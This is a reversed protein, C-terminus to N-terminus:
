IEDCLVYGTYMLRIVWTQRSKNKGLRYNLILYDSIYRFTSKQGLQPSQSSDFPISPSGMSEKVPFMAATYVIGEKLWMASPCMCQM